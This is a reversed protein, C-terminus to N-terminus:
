NGIFREKILELLYNYESINGDNLAVTLEEQHGKIIEGYEFNLYDDPMFGYHKRFIDNDQEIFASTRHAFSGTDSGFGDHGSASIHLGPNSSNYYVKWCQKHALSLSLSVDFLAWTEKPKENLTDFGTGLNFGTLPATRGARHDGWFDKSFDLQSTTTRSQHNQIGSHLCHAFSEEYNLENNQIYQLSQPDRFYYHNHRFNWQGIEPHAFYQPLWEEFWGPSVIFDSHCYFVFDVSQTALFRIGLALADDAGSKGVNKLLTINPRALIQELGKSEVDKHEILVIPGSFDSLANVASRFVPTNFCFPM